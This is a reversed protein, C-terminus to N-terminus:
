GVKSHPFIRLGSMVLFPKLSSSSSFTQWLMTSRSPKCFVGALRAHVVIPSNDLDVALSFPPAVATSFDSAIRACSDGPPTAPYLCAFGWAEFASM